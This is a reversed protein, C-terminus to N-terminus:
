RRLPPATTLAKLNGALREKVDSDSTNWVQALWREAISVDWPMLPLKQETAFPGDTETLVRERPMASVLRQGKDNRLMAPGVSFWCGLRVARDLEKSTGSFWHLVPLGAKPHAELADLVATAAGRSHVSLIRGGDAACAALIRELVSRQTSLSDAYEPSGDLGIEGVYRAETLLECLMSVEGHRERVLQPHLGLGVRIRSFRSFLTRTGAWARPTTTVALVYMGESMARTAVAEPDPYLDLHCHLDIM